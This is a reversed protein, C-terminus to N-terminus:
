KRKAIILVDENCVAKTVATEGNEVTVKPTIIRKSELCITKIDYDSLDECFTFDDNYPLYVVRLGDKKAMCLKESRAKYGGECCVMDTMDYNEFLWKSYGADWAGEFHLADYRSYPM